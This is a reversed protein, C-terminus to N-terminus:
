WWWIKPILHSAFISFFGIYFCWQQIRYKRSVKSLEEDVIEMMAKVRDKHHKIVTDPHVPEGQKSQYLQGSSKRFEAERQAIQEKQIDAEFSFFVGEKNLMFFGLFGSILLFCCGIAELYHPLFLDTKVGFKMALALISFTLGVLFYNFKRKAQISHEKNLKRFDELEDSM